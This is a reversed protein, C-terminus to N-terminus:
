RCDWKYVGYKADMEVDTISDKVPEEGVSFGARIM